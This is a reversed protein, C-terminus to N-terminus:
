LKSYKRCMALHGKYADEAENYGKFDIGGWSRAEWPCCKTKSKKAPFVMTEYKRDAGIDMFGDGDPLEGVTSIIYKGVKTNLKFCCRYGSIFHGAHPMWVWKDQTIKNTM